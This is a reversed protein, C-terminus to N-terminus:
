IILFLDLGAKLYGKESLLLDVAISALDDAAAEAGPREDLYFLKLYRGCADCAEAKVGIMGDFSFYAIEANADCHACQIRPLYWESGCLACTLYRLRQDALVTGAVPPRRCVPCGREGSRAVESPRTRAAWGAFGVQLAAAVFPAIAIDLGAFNGSLIANALALVDEQRLNALRGLAARAASPMAVSALEAMITRLADM